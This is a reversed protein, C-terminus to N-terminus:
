KKIAGVWIKPSRIGPKIEGAPVYIKNNNIFAHTTVPATFSLQAYSQWTNSVRNYKLVDKSFGPHTKQLNNKIATLEKKITTDSAAAIKAALLEVESFVVSKDGGIFLISSDNITVATAASVAEPLKAKEHWTNNEIDWAFVQNYIKSIGDAGKCRGGMIYVQGQLLSAAAFTTPQPMDSVNKWGATLKDFYLAWVKSSIGKGNAGGFVYLASNTAVAVANTLAEPLDPWTIVDFGTAGKSKQICYVQSVPGNENEGGANMIKDPTQAIAAYAISSPLKFSGTHIITDNKIGYVFVDNYYKKTGGEWPLGAPFNNGGGILLQGGIIGTIIGSLGINPQENNITPLMGAERWVIPQQYKTQAMGEMWFSVGLFLLFYKCYKNVNNSQFKQLTHVLVWHM